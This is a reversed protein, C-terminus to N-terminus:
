KWIGDWFYVKKPAVLIAGLIAVLMRKNPYVNWSFSLPYLKQHESPQIHERKVSGCETSETASFNMGTVWPCLCVNEHSM